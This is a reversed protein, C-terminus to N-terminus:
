QGARARLFRGTLSAPFAQSFQYNGNADATRTAAETWASLNASSEVIVSRFPAATVTALFRGQADVRPHSLSPPPHVQLQFLTERTCGGEMALLSYTGAQSVDVIGLDLTANTAGILNLGNHRWQLRLTPSQFSPGTATIQVEDGSILHNPGFRDLITTNGNRTINLFIVQLSSETQVLCFSRLNTTLVTGSGPIPGATFMASSGVRAGACQAQTWSTVTGSLNDWARAQCKLMTGPAMVPVSANVPVFSGAGVGTLFTSSAVPQLASDPADSAAAWLEITFGPGSLPAGSYTQSGAPIGAQTNGTKPCLCTDTNHIPARHVTGSMNEFQLVGQARVQGCAAAALVFGAAVTGLSNARLCIPHTM